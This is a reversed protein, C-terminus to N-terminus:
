AQPGGVGPAGQPPTVAAKQVVKGSPATVTIAASRGPDVGGLCIGTAQPIRVNLPAAVDSRGPVGADDEDDAWLVLRGASALDSLASACRHGPIIQRDHIREGALNSM